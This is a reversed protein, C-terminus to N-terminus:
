FRFWLGVSAVPVVRYGDVERELRREEQAILADLAEQGGPISSIPLATEAHLRVQPTGVYLAGLELSLAFRRGAPPPGWGVLVAPALRNGEITGVARGLPVGVPPLDPRERHLLDELPASLRGRNGNWGVAAGVRFPGGTPHWDLALLASALRVRAEYRVGTRDFSGDLDTRRLSLRLANRPPLPLALDIGAGLTGVQVAIEPAGTDAARLPSSQAAVMALAALLLSRCAGVLRRRRGDAAASPTM